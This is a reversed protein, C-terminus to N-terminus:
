VKYASVFYYSVIFLTKLVQWLAISELYELKLNYCKYSDLKSNDNFITKFNVKDDSM